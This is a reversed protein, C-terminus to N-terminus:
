RGVGVEKVGPRGVRPRAVWKTGGRRGGSPSLLATNRGGEGVFVRIKCHTAAACDDRFRAGAIGRSAIEWALGIRVNPESIDELYMITKSFCFLAELCQVTEM